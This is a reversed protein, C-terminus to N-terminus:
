IRSYHIVNCQIEHLVRVQLVSCVSYQIVSCVTHLANKSHRNFVLFMLKYYFKNYKYYLFM